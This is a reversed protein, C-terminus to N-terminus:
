PYPVLYEESKASKGIQRYIEGLQRYAFEDLADREGELAVLREYYVVAEEIRGLAQYSAALNFLAEKFAPELAVAQVYAKIGEEVQGSRSYVTGLSYHLRANVPEKTLWQEYEQIALPYIKGLNEELLADSRGADKIEQYVALGQIYRGQDHLSRGLAHRASSHLPDRELTQRFYSEAEGYRGRKVMELGMSYLIRSNDPNFRLTERFMEPASQAYYGQRATTLMLTLVIGALVFRLVFPSCINKKDAYRYLWQGGAAILAFVGIAPMYLFHEAVSIYGPSVGITTVIQSVPLLEICFWSMFFVTTGAMRRHSRLFLLVLAAVVMVTGWLAPEAFTSFMKQARDFHLDVPLIFLRLFTLCARLFTLFGLTFEGPSRWPYTQMIGLWRRIVMYILIICIYPLILRWSKRDKQVFFIYSLILVPLMAASEKSLLGGAFCLLSIGYCIMNGGKAGSLARTELFHCFFLLANVTFFTSLIVARGPINAVAEWQVPHVAFLLATFFATGNDRFILLILFFVTVAIMLHLALNDGNYHFPRLGFFHYEIMYSVSVLPRYYHGSGFFSSQFIKGINSFDKIAPNSIISSEDDLTKFTAALMPSHALFGLM